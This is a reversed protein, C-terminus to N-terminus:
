NLPCTQENFSAFIDKLAEYGGSAFAANFSAIVMEPTRDYSVDDSAANLLAAVAHRGLANLGGGRLRVARALTLDDDFASVGFVENFSDGPQYAEPYSDFHHRQKWYGPTCGEGGGEISCVASCGDGGINNGDDCQEGADLIDDGCYSEITCVASCGDGDNNNGDDCAENPNQVGDGCFSAVPCDPHTVVAFDRTTGPRTFVEVYSSPVTDYVPVEITWPVDGAMRSFPGYHGSSDTTESRSDGTREATVLVDSVTVNPDSLCTVTGDVQVAFASTYGGLTLLLLLIKKM